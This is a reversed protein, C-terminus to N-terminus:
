ESVTVYRGYFNSLALKLKKLPGRYTVKVRYQNKNKTIKGIKTLIRRNRLNSLAVELTMLEPSTLVTQKKDGESLLTTMVFKRLLSSSV